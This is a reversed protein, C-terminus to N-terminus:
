ARTIASAACREKGQRKKILAEFLGTKQGGPTKVQLARHGRAKGGFKRQGSGIASGQVGEQACGEIKRGREQAGHQSRRCREEFLTGLM